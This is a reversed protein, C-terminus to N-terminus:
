KFLGRYDRMRQEQVEKKDLKGRNMSLDALQQKKKALEFIKEEISDKMIFQVTTVERTQGIRHVRDVAQAVAAPNYQPEMIYVKSASTLNLGVGGAGITALLVTIKNNSHFEKLAKGRAALTMTGDFDGGIGVHDWGALDVIHMIHDVVTEVNAREPVEANLFRQVFMVMLVGGNTKLREIVDDPANRYNGALNYCTTHSFIVPARTIDLIDRMTQHSVHALDVLMGLRNM